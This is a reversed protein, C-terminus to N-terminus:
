LRVLYKTSSTLFERAKLYSVDRSESVSINSIFQKIMSDFGIDLQTSIVVTRDSVLNISTKSYGINIILCFSDKTIRGLAGLGLAIAEKIFVVKTFGSSDFLKILLKQYNQDFLPSIAVIATNISNNSFELKESIRKIVEKATNVDTVNGQKFVRKMELLEDVSSYKFDIAFDQNSSLHSGKILNVLGSDYIIDETRDSSAKISYTGLDFYFKQKKKKLNM